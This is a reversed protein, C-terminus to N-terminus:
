SSMFTIVFFSHQHAFAIVKETETVQCQSSTLSSNYDANSHPLPGIPRPYDTLISGLFTHAAFLAAAEPCHSDMEM